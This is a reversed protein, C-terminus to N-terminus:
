VKVISQCVQMLFKVFILINKKKDAFGYFFLLSNILNATYDFGFVAKKRQAM